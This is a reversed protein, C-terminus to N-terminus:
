NADTHGAPIRAYEKFKLCSALNKTVRTSQPFKEQMEETVSIAKDYNKLHYTYLSSLNSLGSIRGSKILKDALKNAEDLAEECKDGHALLSMLYLAGLCVDENEYMDRAVRLQDIMERQEPNAKFDNKQMALALGKHFNKKEPDGALAMKFCEIARRKHSNEFRMLTWGKQASLVPHVQSGKPTLFEQQLRRVEELCARSKELEGKHYYVWAMNAQNILLSCDEQDETEAKIYKQGKILVELAEDELGQAHLVYGLDNYLHRMWSCGCRLRDELNQQLKKLTSSTRCDLQWNFHCEMRKLERHLDYGAM